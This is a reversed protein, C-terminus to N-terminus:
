SGAEVLISNSANQPYDVILDPNVPEPSVTVIYHINCVEPVTTWNTEISSTVFPDDGITFELENPNWSSNIAVSSPVCFEQIDILFDKPFKRM